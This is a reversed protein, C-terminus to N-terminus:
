PSPPLPDEGPPAPSSPGDGEAPAESAPAASAEAEAAERCHVFDSVLRYLAAAIPVGLLMGAVGMIGGGVTVVALVWIGPLGISGGVVRPYILNGEVQQLVVLFILFIVAQLPNVMVLLFFGVIGGIYAGAVPILASVGVVVGVVVAYPLRLVTMGLTCLVGLIIAEVCQGVIFSSFSRHVTNLVYYVGSRVRPKLIINALRHFQSALREKSVLLYLAFILGIVFTVVWNVVASLISVTTNFIGTAGYALLDMAREVLAPWNLDLSTLWEQLSPFQDSHRILWNQVAALALPLDRAIMEVSSRLEPLVLLVVASVIAALCVLSLLICIGRRTRKVLISRSHPFWVAEIRVLLLNLIYALVCGLLLPMAARLTIQIAGLPVQIYLIILIVAAVVLACQVFRKMQFKSM